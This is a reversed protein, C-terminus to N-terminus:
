PPGESSAASRSSDPQIGSLLWAFIRAFAAGYGRTRRASLWPPVSSTAHALWVSPWDSHRLGLSYARLIGFIERRSLSSVSRSWCPRARTEPEATIARSYRNKRPGHDCAKKRVKDLYPQPFPAYPNDSLHVNDSLAGDTHRKTEPM